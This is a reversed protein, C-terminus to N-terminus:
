NISVSSPISKPTGQYISSSIFNEIVAPCCMKFFTKISGHVLSNNLAKPFYTIQNFFGETLFGLLFLFMFLNTQPIEQFHRVPIVWRVDVYGKM